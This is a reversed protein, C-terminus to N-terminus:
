TSNREGPAALINDSRMRAVVGRSRPLGATRDEKM